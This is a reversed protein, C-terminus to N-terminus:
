GVEILTIKYKYGSLHHMSESTPDMWGSNETVKLAYVIFKSYRILLGYQCSKVYYIDSIPKLLFVWMPVGRLGLIM